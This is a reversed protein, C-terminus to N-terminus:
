KEGFLLSLKNYIKKNIASINYLSTLTVEEQLLEFNVKVMIYDSIEEKLASLVTENSVGYTNYLFYKKDDLKNVTM